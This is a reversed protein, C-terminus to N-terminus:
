RLGELYAVLADLQSGPLDLTPMQNGPKFRQPDRIWERLHERDNPLTLAALTTRSAVHTLDPGVHADASTGRIAHCTSCTGGLFADLGRAAEGGSPSPAPRSQHALWRRFRAPPDAFVYLGMHAHQLGCFEACQGRYRGPADAYLEIANTQGPITDIKRNLQPVWFSHIVDDTRVEVRVRTRVPIHIENATVVPTGPYRVEWWFQHGIVLVTRETANAAPAQTTRILFVDSVVFLTALLVIPVVIGMGVVVIWGAREGPKEGETDGGLGRRNRRKWALLLLAVVLGLGIWAGGMMWWFLSAIDRSQHSEPALANQQKGCGALLLAAPALLLAASKGPAGARM